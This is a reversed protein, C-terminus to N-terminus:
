LHETTPLPRNERRQLVVISDLFRIEEIQAGLQTMEIETVRGPHGLTFPAVGYHEWYHGHLLDVLDKCLDIFSYDQDRYGPWFNSHTDEAIYVGNKKLGNLFLYDFTKIMHSCVHSGDDLIVDFPGFEAVVAQLFASDSQDGIRVHVGDAPRDFALCTPDIDLGVIVSEPHLYKRWMALSGGKYVGVELFRIPRSRLPGFIKEYASFYHWWKHGGPIQQWTKYLDESPRQANAEMHMPTPETADPSLHLFPGQPPVYLHEPNASPVPRAFRKFAKWM